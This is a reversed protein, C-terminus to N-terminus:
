GVFQAFELEASIVNKLGADFRGAVADAQGHMGNTVPCGVLHEVAKAHQAFVFFAVRQRVKFMSYFVKLQEM